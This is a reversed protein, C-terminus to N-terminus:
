IFDEKGFGYDISVINCIKNNYCLMSTLNVSTLKIFYNIYKLPELYVQVYTLFIKYKNNLESGIINDYQTQKAHM